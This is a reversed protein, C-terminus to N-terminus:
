GEIGVVYRLRPERVTAWHDHLPICNLDERLHSALLDVYALLRGLIFADDM